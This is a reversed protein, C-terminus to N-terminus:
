LVVRQIGARCPSNSRAPCSDLLVPCLVGSNRIFRSTLAGGRTRRVWSGTGRPHPPLTWESTSTTQLWLPPRGRFLAFLAKIKRPPCPRVAAYACASLPAHTRARARHWPSPHAAAHLHPSKPERCATDFKKRLGGLVRRVSVAACFFPGRHQWSPTAGHQARPLACAPMRTRCHTTSNNCQRAPM